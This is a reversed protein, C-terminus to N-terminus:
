HGNLWGEATEETEQKRKGRQKKPPIKREEYLDELEHAIALSKDTQCKARVRDPWISYALHAWDYEGAELKEWTEKLRARWPRHQFLKWLPAATIQVGDDLNPKWLAALRLLEARFDQLELLFDSLWELAKEEASTRGSTQRLRSTDDMVQQLKPDVFDNVCRYLTQDTLRHYYLWLTYSSSPTSLPWYIPAQRRSKSYRNLHDAFFASPRCFYTGLSSVGLVQSVEQETADARDKWIVQLADGVRRKIDEPHREDDVLIGLWSIRLPYDIPVDTSEAPLGQASQLMGPPCIPLPAFPDPLAPAGKTGTAFRIDWRGFVYGLALQSVYFVSASHECIGFADQIRHDDVSIEIGELDIEPLSFAVAVADSIQQCLAVVRDSDENWRSILSEIFSTISVAAGLHPSVFRRDTEWMGYIAAKKRWVENALLSIQRSITKDDLWPLTNVVGTEFSGAQVQLHVLARIPSSNLYGLSFCPDVGEPSFVVPGKDAFICDQPFARPSFGKVTRRPYTVGLRRYFTSARRSQADTNYGIRNFEGVERGDNLWKVLLHIDNYFTEFYGGKSFFIWTKSWGISVIPVEWVLRLFRFDDYTTSGERASGGSSVLTRSTFSWKWFADSINYLFRADNISNLRRREKVFIGKGVEGNNTRELAMLLDSFRNGSRRLDIAQCTSLASLPSALVSACAFVMAGDLVGSGLDAILEIAPLFRQRRWDALTKTYLCARSTLAGIRGCNCLSLTREVFAALVDIFANPYQKNIYNTAATASEGFPPNMLVVDYRKRCLDIFAFGRATDDAFLRRKYSDGNEAEEAYARLAAYIRGEAQQWFEEPNPLELLDFLTIDREPALGPLYGVEKRRQLVAREYEARAAKIVGAVEEEIKLLSGAEGALLMARFIPPLMEGIVRDEAMVTLQRAIFEQLLGKDGPMPEACAVNSRRIELREQPELGQDRWSKQARLWLSLGAIQVARPDIDIGHINREIILYPAARLLAEKSTYDALLSTSGPWQGDAQMDWAEEYIRQFLDFAYLGFHMSGCAPDLMKIDRPDKIPRHPIYVPQRLLEEQSLDQMAADPTSPQEGQALFAENPRRVLYRCTDALGTQGRTMEYWLRGLTNDTLFEVVYRPTFFQNRVALERSNRPAQSGGQTVDRMAKREEKSNFYQYIWGITEDEAWLPDIETHNIQDLLQLLASERPFLRGQPSWRDFLVSLDVALEDFVSHLYCRYADGTEGLATGALRTYLQFGKSRYGAAVSEILLERAEAMRLACLRNLVTFAQERVIRALAEQRSKATPNAIGALYHELTARLLRATERRADDLYSLKDMHAVEGSTPDMGYDQQFQRTFEETLLARADAVFGALRNRTAQDFAM